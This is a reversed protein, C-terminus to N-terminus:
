LEGQRQLFLLRHSRMRQKFFIRQQKRLELAVLWYTILEKRVPNVKAPLVSPVSHTVPREDVFGM